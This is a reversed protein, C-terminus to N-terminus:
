AGPTRMTIAITRADELRIELPEETTIHDQRKSIKVNEITWVTAKAKSRIKSTM